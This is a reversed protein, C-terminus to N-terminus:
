HYKGKEEEKEKEKKNKQCTYLFILLDSFVVIKRLIPKKKFISIQVSYLNGPASSSPIQLEIGNDVSSLLLALM